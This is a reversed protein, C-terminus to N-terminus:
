EREHDPRSVRSSLSRWPERLAAARTRANQSRKMLSGAWGRHAQARICQEEAVARQLHTRPLVRARVDREVFRAPDREAQLLHARVTGAVLQAAATSGDFPAAPVPPAGSSRCSRPAVLVIRTDLADAHVKTWLNALRGTLDFVCASPAPTLFARLEVVDKTTAIVISMAHLGARELEASLVTARAATPQVVAIRFRLPAPLAGLGATRGTHRVGSIDLSWQREDSLANRAEESDDGARVRAAFVREFLEGPVVLWDGECCDRVSDYRM